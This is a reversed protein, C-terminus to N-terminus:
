EKDKKATFARRYSLVEKFLSFFHEVSMVVVPERYSRKCILLWDTGDKKNAKAQEIWKHMDWKDTNKCEISYLIEKAADGYLKIDVGPQGMERGEILEDKGFPYGTIKSFLRGIFNQLARGKAKRGKVTKAVM